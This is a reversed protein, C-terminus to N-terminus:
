SEIFSDLFNKGSNKSSWFCEMFKNFQMKKQFIESAQVLENQTRKLRNELHEIESISELARAESTVIKRLKSVTHRLFIDYNVSEPIFDFFNKEEVLKLLPYDDERHFIIVETTGNKYMPHDIFVRGNSNMLRIDIIAFNSPTSIMKEWFTEILQHSEGSVGLKKLSSCVVGAEESDAIFIHASLKHHDNKFEM